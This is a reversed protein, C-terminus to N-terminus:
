PQCAGAMVAQREMATLQTQVRELLPPDDRVRERLGRFLDLAEEFRDLQCLRWGLQFPALGVHDGDLRMAERFEAIAEQPKDQYLANGRNYHAIADGRDLLLSDVESWLSRCARRDENSLTKLTEEDRIAGLDADFKWHRLSQMARAEVQPLASRAQKIWHVLDARLWVLAQKRWRGREPEGLPPNDDGRGASALAASCAANYRYQATMSEAHKPDSEFAEAFLRASAAFLKTEYAIDAFTLSDATDRPKVDGRIIGPLRSALDARQEAKTIEEQVRRTLDDRATPSADRDDLVRRPLGQFLDIAERYHGVRKLAAGLAFPAASTLSTM